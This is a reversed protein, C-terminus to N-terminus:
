HSRRDAPRYRCASSSPAYPAAIREDGFETDCAALLADIDQQSYIFPVARPKRAALLGSPIVPVDVDNAHLYAAFRRVLSLRTAVM